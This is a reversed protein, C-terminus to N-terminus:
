HLMAMGRASRNGERAFHKLVRIKLKMTGLLSRIRRAESSADPLSGLHLRLQESRMELLAVEHYLKDV